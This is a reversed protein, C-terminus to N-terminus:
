PAKPRPATKGGSVSRIKERLEAAPAYSPTIKYIEDLLALAGPMDNNSYDRVARYYLREVKKEDEASLKAPAARKAPSAPTPRSGPLCGCLVAAAAAAFLYILSRM